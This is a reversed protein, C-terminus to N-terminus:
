VGLTMEIHICFSIYGGSCHESNDRCCFLRSVM